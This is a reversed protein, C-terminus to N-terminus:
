VELFLFVHSSFSFDVKIHKEIDVSYSKLFDCASAKEYSIHAQCVRPSVKIDERFVFSFGASRYFAFVPIIPDPIIYYPQGSARHLALRM